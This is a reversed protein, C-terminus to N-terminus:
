TEKTRNIDEKITTANNMLIVFARKKKVKLL